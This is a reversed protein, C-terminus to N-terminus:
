FSTLAVLAAHMQRLVFELNPVGREVNTATPTLELEVHELTIDTVQEASWELLIMSEKIVGAFFAVTKKSWQHFDEEKDIFWQPRGFGRM